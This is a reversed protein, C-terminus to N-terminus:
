NSNETLSQTHKQQTDEDGTWGRDVNQHWVTLDVVVRTAVDGCVTLQQRDENGATLAAEWVLADQGDVRQSWM